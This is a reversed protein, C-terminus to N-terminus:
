QARITCFFCCIIGHRWQSDIPFHVVQDRLYVKKEEQWQRSCALTKQRRAIRALESDHISPILQLRSRQWRPTLACHASRHLGIHHCMRFCRKAKFSVPGAFTYARATSVRYCIVRTRSPFTDCGYSKADSECPTLFSFAYEETSPPSIPRTTNERKSGSSRITSILSM